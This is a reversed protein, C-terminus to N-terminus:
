GCTNVTHVDSPPNGPNDPDPGFQAGPASAFRSAATLFSNHKRNADVTRPKAFEVKKQSKEFSEQLNYSGPAPLEQVCLHSM